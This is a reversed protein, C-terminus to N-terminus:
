DVDVSYMNYKLTGSSNTYGYYVYFGFGSADSFDLANSLIDFTQTSSLTVSKSPLMLGGGTKFAIYMVLKGSTGVDSTSVTMKPQMMVGSCAPIKIYESPTTINTAVSVGTLASSPAASIDGDCESPTASSSKVGLRILVDGESYSTMSSLNHGIYSYGTGSNDPDLPIVYTDSSSSSTFKVVTLYKGSSSCVSTSPEVYHWGNITSSSSKKFIPTKSSLNFISDTDYVSVEYSMNPYVLFFSVHSICESSSATFKVAGYAYSSGYGVSSYTYGDSNGDHYYVKSTSSDKKIGVVGDQGMIDNFVYDTTTISNNISYWNDDQGSWGMNLHLQKLGSYDKYGDAVVAHGGSSYSSIGYLTPRNSDLDSKFIAFWTDDSSFDERKLYQSPYYKFFKYLADSSYFLSASTESSKLEAEVAIGVDNILTAVASIQSESSYYDLSDPMNDWYYSHEFNASRYLGSSPDTYSHSGRGEDPWQHYNMVQSTAVPVCGAPYHGDSDSCSSCTPLYQNYYPSQDWTTTLLPDKQSTASFINKNEIMEWLPLNDKFLAQSFSNGYLISHLERELAIPFGEGNINYDNKLSYAKIPPLIDDIPVVIYGNPILRFLYAVDQNNYSLTESTAVFNDANLIDLWNEAIKSAYDKTIHKAFSSSCLIFIFLFIYIIRIKRM